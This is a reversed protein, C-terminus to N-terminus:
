VVDITTYQNLQFSSGDLRTIKVTVINVNPDSTKTYTGSVSKVNPSGSTVYGSSGYVEYIVSSNNPDYIGGLLKGASAPPIPSPTPYNVSALAWHSGTTVRILKGTVNYSVILPGTLNNEIYTDPSPYPGSPNAQYSSVANKYADLEQQFKQTAPLSIVGITLLFFDQGVGTSSTINNGNSYVGYSAGVAPIGNVLTPYASQDWTPTGIMKVEAGSWTVKYTDFTEGPQRPQLALDAYAYTPQTVNEKTSKEKGSQDNVPKFSDKQCSSFGTLLLLMGWLLQKKM